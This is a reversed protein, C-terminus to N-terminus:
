ASTMTKMTSIMVLRRDASTASIRTGMTNPRIPPNPGSSPPMIFDPMSFSAGVPTMSINATSYKPMM